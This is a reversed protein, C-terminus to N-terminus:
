EPKLGGYKIKWSDQRRGASVNMGSHLEICFILPNLQFKVCIEDAIDPKLTEPKVDAMKIEPQVGM